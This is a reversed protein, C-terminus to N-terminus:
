YRYEHHAKETRAKLDEIDKGMKRRKHAQNDIIVEDDSDADFDIRKRVSIERSDTDKDLVDCAKRKM